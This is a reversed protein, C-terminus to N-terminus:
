RVKWARTSKAAAEERLKNLYYGDEDEAHQSTPNQSEVRALMCATAGSADLREKAQRMAWLVREKRTRELEEVGDMVLLALTKSLVKRCKRYTERIM